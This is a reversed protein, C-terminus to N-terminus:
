RSMPGPRHKTHPWSRYRFHKLRRYCSVSIRERESNGCRTQLSKFILYRYQRLHWATFCRGPLSNRNIDNRLKIYSRYGFGFTAAGAPNREGSDAGVLMSGKVPIRIIRITDREVALMRCCKYRRFQNLRLSIIHRRKIVAMALTYTHRHLSRYYYKGICRDRLLAVREYGTNLATVLPVKVVLKNGSSGVLNDHRVLPRIYPRPEIGRTNWMLM